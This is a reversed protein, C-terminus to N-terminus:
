KLNDLFEKVEFLDKFQGISCSKIRDDAKVLDEVHVATIGANYAAQIGAPSDEIVICKEPKSNLKKAATLFIEPDPKSKTVDDACIIEDFVEELNHIHLQMDLKTRPSSTAIAMKFDRNKLYDFIELVGEKIPVEGNDIAEKLHKDCEKFMETGNFNGGYKDELIKILSPKDRGIFTKYLEPTMEYGHEAYVKMWINMYVRETDFIVGDMDFIVSDKKM